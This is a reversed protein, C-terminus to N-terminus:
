QLIFKIGADVPRDYPCRLISLKELADKKAEEESYFVSPSSVISEIYDRDKKSKCTRVLEWSVGEVTEKNKRKLRVDAILHVIYKWNNM